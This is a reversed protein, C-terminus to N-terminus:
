FILAIPISLFARTDENILEEDFPVPTTIFVVALLDNEMYFFQKVCILYLLFM